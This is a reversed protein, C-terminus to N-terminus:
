RHSSTAELFVDVGAVAQGVNGTMGAARQLELSEQFGREGGREPRMDPDGVETQPFKKDVSGVARDGRFDPM